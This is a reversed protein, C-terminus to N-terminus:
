LLCRRRSRTSPACAGGHTAAIPTLCNRSEDSDDAGAVSPIDTLLRDGGIGVQDVQATYRNTSAGLSIVPV